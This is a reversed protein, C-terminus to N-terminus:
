KKGLIIKERLAVDVASAFGRFRPYRDRPVRNALIALVQDYAVVGEGAEYHARFMGFPEEVSVEGPLNKVGFGRPLHITGRFRASNPNGLVLDYRREALAALSSLRIPTFSVKVALGRDTKEAFSAVTAEVHVAVEGASLDKLDSFTFSDLTVRGFMQGLMMNLRLARQGEVAFFSRIMVAPDGRFTLDARLKASGDERLVVDFEELIRHDEPRNWPVTVIEGGDPRVVLVKAGRDMGPMAEMPHYQATGDLFLGRGKGDVDPVYSICHNFHGVLPLSLDERWRSTTAGILVPYCEIGLEKLMTTTLIAKDKCDGFKRSFIAAADFPKYGHVGFEWSADYRVDTVVWDYVARIKEYRTKKGRTIEALKARMEDNMRLQDRILHWYWRAFDNWSRYNSVQVQPFVERPSPMNPEFRVKPIDTMVFTFVKTEGGPGESVVPEIEVNRTHFYLEEDRPAIVTYEARLSPRWDAFYFTEGFYNGFFSPELDDVRWEVHVIDGKELRPLDAYRGGIIRGEESTGDRRIVRAKKWHVSQERPSFPVGYRDFQKVGQDNLVRYVRRHFTSTTGDPHVDTIQQDLVVLWPDNEASEFARARALLPELDVPFSDEFPRSAPDLFEVYRRLKASRPNVALARKLYDLAKGRDGIKLHLRGAQSLLAHDEPCIRLAAQVTEAAERYLGLGELLLAKGRRAGLDFSDLGIERDYLALAEEPRTGRELLDILRRRAAGLLFDVALARRLLARAREPREENEERSAARLLFPIRDRFRDREALLRSLAHEAEVSMGRRRLLDIELLRADLFRPNVELARRLYEEAKGPIPLDYTYYRALLFCAAAHDRDLRIAAEIARRRRNEEKEVERRVKRRSALALAYRLHPDGPALAVAQELLKRARFEHRDEYERRLHLYGLHLLARADGRNEDVVRRLIWRADPATEVPEGATGAAGALAAEAAAADERAASVRLGELPSGDPKTIRVRFGWPGTQDTIKLLLRNWGARLRIGATDQDLGCARQVDRSLVLRGNWWAKVGEDSGVRLAAPRPAPSKVWCLAYALCQDNPRFIEDLDVYGFVSDAHIRRWRVKREKGSMVLALDVTGAEPPFARAFGSGRENDFSGAVQFDRLFGLTEALARAKRLRGEAVLCRVRTWRVWAHLSPGLADPPFGELFRGTERFRSTKGTLFRVKELLFEARALTEGRAPNREAAAERVTEAFARRFADLAEAYRGRSERLLAERELLDSKGPGDGALAPASSLLLALLATFTFSRM